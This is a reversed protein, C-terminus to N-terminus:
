VHVTCVYCCHHLCLVLFGGLVKLGVQVEGWFVM